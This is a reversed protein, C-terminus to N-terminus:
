VEFLKDIMKESPGSVAEVHRDLNINKKSSKLLVGKAVEKLDIKPHHIRLWNLAFKAGAVMQAKLFSHIGRVNKFKEM